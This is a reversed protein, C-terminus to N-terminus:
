QYSVYFIRLFLIFIYNLMGDHNGYLKEMEGTVNMHPVNKPDNWPWNPVWFPNTENPDDTLSVSAINLGNQTLILKLKNSALIWSPQSGRWLTESVIVKTAAKSM